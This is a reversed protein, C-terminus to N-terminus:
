KSIQLKLQTGIGEPGRDISWNSGAISNFLSSGLGPLGSRPGIGNDIIRLSIADSESKLIVKAETALGHRLANSFAEELVHLINRTEINSVNEDDGSFDIETTLVGEWLRILNSIEQSVSGLNHSTFQDFPTTVSKRAKEIEISLTESDHSNGALEIAFASAMLRSQLNGHLYKAMENSLRIAENNESITRVRSKDIRAQLNDLIEQSQKLSTDILGCTVTLLPLWVAITITVGIFHGDVKDGFILATYAAPILAALLLASVYIQHKFKRWRQIALEASWYIASTSLALAFLRVPLAGSGHDNLNVPIASVLFIPLILKLPFASTTIMAKSIDVLTIDAIASSPRGWLRHSIERVSERANTRLDDAIQQWSDSFRPKEELTKKLDVLLAGLEKEITSRLRSSMVAIVENSQFEKSEILIQEAILETRKVRYDELSNMVLAAAPVGVLGLFGATVFRTSIAQAGEQEINLLVSLSGTTIGKIAGTTFGLIFIWAIPVPRMARNRFVTIHAVYLLACFVLYGGASAILWGGLESPDFSTSEVLV